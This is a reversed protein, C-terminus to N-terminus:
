PKPNPTYPTPHLTHPTPHPTYPTPHLTYPTPHLTYQACSLLEEMAEESHVVYLERGVQVLGAKEIAKIQAVLQRIRALALVFEPGSPSKIRSQPSLTMARCWTFREEFRGLVGTSQSPYWSLLLHELSM